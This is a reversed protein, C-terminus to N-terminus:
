FTYTIEDANNDERSERVNNKEDVVVRIIHDGRGVAISLKEITSTGGEM